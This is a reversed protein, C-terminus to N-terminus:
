QVPSASARQPMDEVLAAAVAGILNQAGHATYGETCIALVKGRPSDPEGIFAVDHRIGDDWGSKSACATTPSLANAIIPFRQARLLNLLLDRSHRRLKDGCIIERMLRSIDAASAAHTYGAERAADDCILRTMRVGPVGLRECAQRVAALGAVGAASPAQARHEPSAGILSGGIAEVLLNTAENSSTTLMRALLWSLSLPVGDEPMGPDLEATAIDFSPKGPIRSSFRRASPVQRDLSLDGAEVAFMLAAAVALKVTSAAYYERGGDWEAIPEGDQRLLAFSIHPDRM